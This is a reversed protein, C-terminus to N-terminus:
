NFGTLHTRKTSRWTQLGLGGVHSRHFRGGCSLVALNHSPEPVLRLRVVLVPCIAIHLYGLLDRCCDNGCNSHVPESREKDYFRMKNNLWIDREM